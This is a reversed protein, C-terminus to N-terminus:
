AAEGEAEIVGAATLKELLEDAVQAFNTIALQIQKKKDATKAVEKNEALQYLSQSHIMMPDFINRLVTSARFTDLGEIHSADNEIASMEKSFKKGTEVKTWLLAHPIKSGRGYELDTITKHTNIADRADFVAVPSPIINFQSFSIAKLSVGSTGGPTDIFIFDMGEQRAEKVHDIITEQDVGAVVSFNDIDCHEGYIGVHGNTDCDLVRVNFGRHAFETALCIGTITKGAGGKNQTHTIIIGLGAQDNAM